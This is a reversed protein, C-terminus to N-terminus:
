ENYFLRRKNRVKKLCLILSFVNYRCPLACHKPKRTTAFCISIGKTSIETLPQTSGLSMTRGSPIHCHFIGTVYDPISGAVRRSTACHMLWSCGQTCWKDENFPVCIAFKKRGIINNGTAQRDVEYKEVYDWLHCSKRFFITTSCLIHIKIKDVVNTQFTGRELLLEPIQTYQWFHLFMKVYLLQKEEWSKTNGANQCCIHSLDEFIFKWSFGDLSLRNTRHPSVSTDFSITADRLGKVCSNFREACRRRVLNKVLSKAEEVTCKTLTHM